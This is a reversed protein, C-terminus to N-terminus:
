GFQAAWAEQIAANMISDVDFKEIGNGGQLTSTIWPRAPISVLTRNARGYPQVLGGFHVLNAYPATYEITIQTSNQLYKTKIKKSAKLKGTDVINRPTGAIDGNTRYTEKGTWGWVPADMAKDLAQSLSTEVRSTGTQVGKILAKKMAAAQKDTKGKLDLKPTPIKITFSQDKPPQVAGAM